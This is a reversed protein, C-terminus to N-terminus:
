VKVASSNGDPGLDTPIEIPLVLLQILLRTTPRVKGRRCTCNPSNDKENKIADDIKINIKTKLYSFINYLYSVPIHMYICTCVCFQLIHRSEELSIYMMLQFDQQFNISTCIHDNIIERPM